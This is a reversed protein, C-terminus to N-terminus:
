NNGLLEINGMSLFLFHPTLSSDVRMGASLERTLKPREAGIRPTQQGIAETEQLFSLSSWFRGQNKIELGGEGLVLLTRTASALIKIKYFKKVFNFKIRM